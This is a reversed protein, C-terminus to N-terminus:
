TSRDSQNDNQNDSQYDMIDENRHELRWNAFGVLEVEKWKLRLFAVGKFRVLDTAPVFVIALYGQIGFNLIETVIIFDGGFEHAGPKIQVISGIKLDPNPKM